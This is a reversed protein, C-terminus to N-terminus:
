ARSPNNIHELQICNITNSSVSIQDKVRSILYMYYSVYYYNQAIGVLNSIDKEVSSGVSGTRLHTRRYTSSITGDALHTQSFLHIQFLELTGCLHVALVRNGVIKM